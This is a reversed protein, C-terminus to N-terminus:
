LGFGGPYFSGVGASGSGSSASPRGWHIAVDQIVPVYDLGTDNPFLSKQDEPTYRRVRPRELDILRSEASLSITSGEGADDISMVDMRGDFVLYPDAVVAGSSMAGFRIKVSRGQYTESLAISLLSAPFGSLTLNVGDARIDATETVSSIGILNGGGLYDNSNWTLTSIGTWFYLAGSDFGLDILFFPELESATLETNLASTVSRAM